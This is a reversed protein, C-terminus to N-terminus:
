KGLFKFMVCHLHCLFRAPRFPWFSVSMRWHVVFLWHYSVFSSFDVNCITQQFSSLSTFSVTYTASQEVSKDCAWYFFSQQVGSTCRLKLLKHAHGHTTTTFIYEFFDNVNVSVLGFFHIKYCFILDLHLRQLELRLLGLKQLRKDYLLCRMGFLRKRFRRQVQINALM